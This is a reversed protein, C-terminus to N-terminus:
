ATSRGALGLCIDRAINEAAHDLTGAEEAPRDGDLCVRFATQQLHIHRLLVQTAERQHERLCRALDLPPLSEVAQRVTASFWRGDVLRIALTEEGSWGFRALVTQAAIKAADSFRGGLRAARWEEYACYFDTARGGAATSSHSLPQSIGLRGGDLQHLHAYLPWKVM